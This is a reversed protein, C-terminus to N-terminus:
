AAEESKAAALKDAIEQLQDIQAQLETSYKHVTGVSQTPVPFDELSFVSYATPKQQIVSTGGLGYGNAKAKNISPFVIIGNRFYHINKLRLSKM